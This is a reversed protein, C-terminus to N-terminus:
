SMFTMSLFSSKEETKEFFNKVQKSSDQTTFVLLRDGPRILTNGKPVIVKKRRLVTGIIAKFPFNLDKVLCDDFYDPVQIELVKGKGMEVTVLIDLNTEVLNNMLEKVSSSKPSLAVDIGVTEFLKLNSAKDVRTLVKKVGLQKALLSCLLNKEDNDTVTVMVDTKSIEREQLLELDTGDGKIITSKTLESLLEEYREPDKEIITVELNKNELNKALMLGVTGGGIITVSRTEKVQEFYNNSLDELAEDTGIFIVKDNKILETNGTPIFLKDERTIAVIISDEPFFCDKLMKGIIPTTEKVRYEFLKIQGRALVEVDIAAPVSIIKEIEDSLSKKPWIIQDIGFLDHVLLKNDKAKFTEIYEPHNVFCITEIKSLQKATWCSIINMEDSATCAIIVDAKEANATSLVQADAGSGNVFSIDLKSFRDFVKEDIDIVTIDHNIHLEKALQYGFGGGGVIIINM